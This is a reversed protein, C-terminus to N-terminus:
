HDNTKSWALYSCEHLRDSLICPCKTKIANRPKFSGSRVLSVVKEEGSEVGTCIALFDGGSEM